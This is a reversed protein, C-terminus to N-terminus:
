DFCILTFVNMLVILTIVTNKLGEKWDPQSINANLKISSEHLGWKISPVNMPTLKKSDTLYKRLELISPVEAKNVM